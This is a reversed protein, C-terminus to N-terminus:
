GVHTEGLRMPKITRIHKLPHQIALRSFLDEHFNIGRFYTMAFTLVTSISLLVQHLTQLTTKLLALVKIAAKFM